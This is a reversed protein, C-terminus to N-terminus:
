YALHEKKETVIKQKDFIKLVKFRLQVVNLIETQRYAAHTIEELDRLYERIAM